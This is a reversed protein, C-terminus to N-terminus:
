PPAMAISQRRSFEPPRACKSLPVAELLFYFRPYNFSTAVESRPRDAILGVDLGKSSTNFFLPRPLGVRVIM